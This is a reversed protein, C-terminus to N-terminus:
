ADTLGPDRLAEGLMVRGLQAHRDSAGHAVHQTRKPAPPKALPNPGIVGGSQVASVHHGSPYLMGTNADHRHMGPTVHMPYVAKGRTADRAINPGSPNKHPVKAADGHSDHHRWQPTLVVKNAM